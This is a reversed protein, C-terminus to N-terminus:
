YSRCIGIAIDDPLNGSHYRVLKILAGLSEHMSSKKIVSAIVERSTYKLLGDTAVLLTGSFGERSFGVPISAGTGAFPKRMQSKTLEDIKEDRLIWAGSDGISAGFIQDPRLVVIVATTEGATQNASIAQDISRLLKECDKASTLSHASERALSVVMDAAEAGGSRGGAGDAVVFILRDQAHLVDIRDQGNEGASLVIQDFDFM